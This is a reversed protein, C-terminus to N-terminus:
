PTPRGQQEGSRAPRRWPEAPVIHEADLSEIEPQSMGLLDRLLAVRHEAFMPGGAAPLDQGDLKLRPGAYPKTGAEAHPLERFFRRSALQDDALLDSVSQAAAAPVGRRQLEAEAEAKTRAAAWEGIAADIQERRDRRADVGDLATNAAMEPRGIVDCLARWQEVNTVAIAIWEDEGACRYVDHPSYAESDNGHRTPVEGTARYEIV